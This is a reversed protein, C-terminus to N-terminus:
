IGGQNVIRSRSLGPVAPFLKMKAAIIAHGPGDPHLKDLSNPTATVVVTSRPPELGFMGRASTLGPDRMDVLSCLSDTAIYTNTADVIADRYAGASTGNELAPPIAVVILTTSGFYTRMDALMTGIKTQLTAVDTDWFPDNTGHFIYVNDPAVSITRAKGAYHFRYSSSTITTTDIFAPVMGTAAVGGYLFATSAFGIQGYGAGTADALLRPWADYAVQGGPTATSIMRIGEAISDGYMIATKPQAILERGMQRHLAGTPLNIQKFIVANAPGLGAVDTWRDNTNLTRLFVARIRNPGVRCNTVIPFTGAMASTLQTDTWPGENVSYRLSPWEAAPWSYNTADFALSVAGSTPAWFEWELYAGPNNTTLYTPQSTPAVWTYPSFRINLDAALITTSGTKAIVSVTNGTSADTITLDAAATGTYVDATAYTDSYVVINTVTAGTGGAITLLTGGYAVWATGVGYFGQTTYSTSVAGGKLETMLETPAVRAVGVVTTSDMVRLIGTSGNTTVNVLATDTDVVQQSTVSVGAIGAATFTPTGPTGPTWAAGGTRPDRKVTIQTATSLPLRQFEEVVLHEMMISNAETNAASANGHQVGANLLAELPYSEMVEAIVLGDQVLVYWGDAAYLDLVITKSNAKLTADAVNFMTIATGVVDYTYMRVNVVTSQAFIGLYLKQKGTGGEAMVNMGGIIVDGANVATVFATGTVVVVRAHWANGDYNIPSTYRSLGVLNEAIMRGGSATGISTRTFTATEAQGWVADLEGPHASLLQASPGTFSDSFVVSGLQPGGSGIARLSNWVNTATDDSAIFMLGMATTIPHAPLTVGTFADTTSSMEVTSGVFDLAPYRSRSWATGATATDWAVYLEENTEDLAIAVDLATSASKAVVETAAWTPSAANTRTLVIVSPDNAGGGSTMAAVYVRGDADAVMGCAAASATTGPYGPLSSTEDVWNGVTAPNDADDLYLFGGAGTSPAYFVGVYDTGVWTFAEPATACSASPLTSKITTVGAQWTAGSDTSWQVALDSGANADFVMLRGSVARVLTAGATPAGGQVGTVTVPFGGDITWASTAYTLRIITAAGTGAVCDLVYLKNGAGDLEVDARVGATADLLLHTAWSGGSYKWLYLGPGASDHWAGWWFGDHYFTKNQGGHQTGNTTGTIAPM